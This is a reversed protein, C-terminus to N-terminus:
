LMQFKDTVNKCFNLEVNEHDCNKTVQATQQSPSIAQFNPFVPEVGPWAELWRHSKCSESGEPEQSSYSTNLGNSKGSRDCMSGQPLHYCLENIHCTPCIPSHHPKRTGWTPWSISVTKESHWIIVLYSFHKAFDHFSCNSAIDYVPSPMIVCKKDFHCGVYCILALTALKM